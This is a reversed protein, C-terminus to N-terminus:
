GGLGLSDYPTKIDLGAEKYEDSQCSFGPFQGGQSQTWHTGHYPALWPAGLPSTQVQGGPGVVGRKRSAPRGKGGGDGRCELREENWSWEERKRSTLHPWSSPHNLWVFGNEYLRAYESFSGKKINLSDIAKMARERRVYLDKRRPLLEVFDGEGLWEIKFLTKISLEMLLLDGKSAPVWFNYVSKSNLPQSLPSSFDSARHHNQERAQSLVTLFCKFEGYFFNRPIILDSCTTM